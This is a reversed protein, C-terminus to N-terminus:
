SFSILIIDRNTRQLWVERTGAAEGGHGTQKSGDPRRLALGVLAVEVRLSRGRHGGHGGDGRRMRGEAPLWLPPASGDLVGAEVRETWM